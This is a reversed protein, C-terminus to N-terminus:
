SCCASTFERWSYKLLFSSSLLATYPEAEHRRCRLSLQNVSTFLLWKEFLSFNFDDKKSIPQFTNKVQDPFKFTIFTLFKLGNHFGSKILFTISSIQMPFLYLVVPACTSLYHWEKSHVFDYKNLICSYMFGANRADAEGHIFVGELDYKPIEHWAHVDFFHTWFPKNITHSLKWLKKGHITNHYIDGTM